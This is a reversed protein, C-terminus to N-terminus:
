NKPALVTVWFTGVASQFGLRELVESGCVRMEYDNGEMVAPMSLRIQPAMSSKLNGGIMNALEGLVDRVDDDVAEPADMALILGAFQCAQVASCELFVAGNWGGTLYVSSTLRSGHSDFPDDSPNVELSMMTAFVSTVIQALMDVSLETQM